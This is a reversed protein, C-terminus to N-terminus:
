QVAIRQPQAAVNLAVSVRLIGNRYKAEVKLPDVEDPLSVARSFCGEPRENSYLQTKSDRSPIGQAVASRHLLNSAWAIGSIARGVRAIRLRLRM